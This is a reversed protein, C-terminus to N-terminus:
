DSVVFEISLHHCTYSISHKIELVGLGFKAQKYKNQHMKQVSELYPCLILYKESKKLINQFFAVVVFYKTQFFIRLYDHFM